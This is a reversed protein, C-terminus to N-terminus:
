RNQVRASVIEWGAGGRALEFTWSRPETRRSGDGVKPAWSTTGACRATAHAGIVDIRCNGLSVQQSALSDFARALAGRNVGPWVRQAADVDLSTFAAAYRDLTSRVAPEESPEAPPTLPPASPVKATATAPAPSPAAMPADPPTVPSAAPLNLATVPSPDPTAPLSPAPKSEFAANEIPRPEIQSPPVSTARSAPVAAPADPEVGATPVAKEVATQPRAAATESAFVDAPPPLSPLTAPATQTPSPAAATSTPTKQPAPNVPIAASPEPRPAPRSVMMWAGLVATGSLALVAAAAAGWRRAAGPKAAPVPEAAKRELEDLGPMNPVLSRAEALVQLADEYCRAEIAAEARLLLRDARRRRMRVEFSQWEGSTTHPVM